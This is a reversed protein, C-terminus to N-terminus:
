FFQSVLAKSNAQCFEGPESTQGTSSFYFSFPGLTSAFVVREDNKKEETARESMMLLDHVVRIAGIVDNRKM